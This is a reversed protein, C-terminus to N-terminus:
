PVRTWTQSRCFFGGILCGRAIISNPGSLRLSGSFSRGRDPAFVRGSWANTGSPHFERFLQTGVLNQTGGARAKQQARDNAWVVTGCVNSGCNSIRVHVSNKPNRWVGNPSSPAVAGAEAGLAALAISVGAAAAFLNRM